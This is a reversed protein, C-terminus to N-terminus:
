QKLLNLVVNKGRSRIFGFRDKLKLFYIEFCHYSAYSLLFSGALTLPAIVLHTSIHQYSLHFFKTLILSVVLLMLPHWLYLGYTYKGWYTIWKYNGLKYKQQRCFNQDIIVYAFFVTQFLRNFVEVLDHAPFQLAFILLLGAGYALARVTNSQSEFLGRFSNNTFALYATWGGLALDGM